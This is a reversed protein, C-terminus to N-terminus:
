EMYEPSVGIESELVLEGTCKLRKLILMMIKLTRSTKLLKSQHIIVHDLLRESKSIFGFSNLASNPLSIQVSWAM